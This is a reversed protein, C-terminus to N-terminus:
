PTGRGVVAGALVDSRLAASVFRGSHSLSLEWGELARGAVVLRPPGPLRSSEEPREIALAPGLTPDLSLALERALARAALSPDADGRRRVATAIAPEPEAPRSSAAEGNWWALCHVFGDGHTFRAGVRGVPHDVSAREPDRPTVAFRRHAFALGPHAKILAKFAAEKAAWLMWLTHDPASSAAILAREGLTFVREVFRASGSKGLADEEELDVIDDGIRM